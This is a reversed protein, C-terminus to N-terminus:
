DERMKEELEWLEMVDGVRITAGALDRWNEWVVNEGFLM